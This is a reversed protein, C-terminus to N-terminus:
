RCEACSRAVLAPDWSASSARQTSSVCAFGVPQMHPYSRVQWPMPGVRRKREAGASWLRGVPRSGGSTGQGLATGSIASHRSGTTEGQPTLDLVHWVPSLLDIGRQDIDDSMRPHVSYFHHVSGNSDRTFVSM